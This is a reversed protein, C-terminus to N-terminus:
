YALLYLRCAHMYVYIYMCYPNCGATYTFWVWDPFVTTPLIVVLIVTVVAMIGLGYEIFLDQSSGKSAIHQEIAHYKENIWSSFHIGAHLAALPIVTGAWLSVLWEMLRGGNYSGIVNGWSNDWQLFFNKNCEMQWSSFSTISGCLGSTVSIYFIKKTQSCGEGMWTAKNKLMFGFIFCGIIQTYM